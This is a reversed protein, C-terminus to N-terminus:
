LRCLLMLTADIQIGHLFECIMICCGPLDVCLDMHMENINALHRGALVAAVALVNSVRSLCSSVRPKGVASSWGM